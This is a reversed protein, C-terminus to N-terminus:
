TERAVLDTAGQCRRALETNASWRMANLSDRMATIAEFRHNGDIRDAFSALKAINAELLMLHQRVVAHRQFIAM